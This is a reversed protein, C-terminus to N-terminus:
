LVYVQFFVQSYPSCGYAPLTVDPNNVTMAMHFLHVLADGLSKYYDRCNQSFVSCYSYAEEHWDYQRAYSCSSNTPLGLKRCMCHTDVGRFLVYAFAAAFILVLAMPIAVFVVRPLVLTANELIRRVNKAREVLLLSMFPRMFYVPWHRTTNVLLNVLVGALVGVKLRIWSSAWFSDGGMVKHQLRVDFFFAVLLAAELWLYRAWHAGRSRTPDTASAPTWLPIALLLAVVGFYCLRYTASHFFKYDRMTGHVPLRAHKALSVFYLAMNARESAEDEPQPPQPQQKSGDGEGCQEADALMQAYRGARPNFVPAPDSLLSVRLSDGDGDGNLSMGRM